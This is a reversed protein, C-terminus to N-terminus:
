AARVRAAVMKLLQRFYLEPFWRKMRWRMPERLTPIIMFEGREAAAFVKDSVSDITDPATDMLKVALNKVKESGIATDCLNTRFFSPCIVSVRIGQDHVEARLQESLAVVGAKSVGYTMMGPAGALGAFSATSIIQGSGAAIMGPLFLRCGRVVSLLDVELLQRWESMTTEIMPGGSAIGANNILVDLGGWERMVAEHMQEMAEDNGVNAVLALHGGGSLMARTIEARENDLDVCAVRAGARAYRLALAQGLGSGAGTILVRRQSSM